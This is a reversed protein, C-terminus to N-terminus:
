AHAAALEEVLQEFKARNLKLQLHKPDKDATPPSSRSTSRRARYRPSSASPRRPPKRSGSCRWAQGQVPRHGPGEQVGRRDLRDARQDLNTAVWTRTATPRSSRSWVWRRGRPDLHRVHRRRLRLGRDDRRDEQRPRLSLAARRPSTSSASSPGSGRHQGADKTAQRQTDDFYAPVTIVARTIKEGLHAEAAESAAQRLVMASVEPPSYRSTAPDQDAADGNDAAQRGRVSGDEDRRAGRLVQTGHLAQRLLHHKRSQHGGPAQGGPGGSARGQRQGRLGVAHYPRGGPEHHRDPKGGEMVAVVSNTTGLDIGIIKSM